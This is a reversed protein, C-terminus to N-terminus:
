ASRVRVRGKATSRHNAYWAAADADNCWGGVNRWSAQCPTCYELGLDAAVEADVYSACGQGVCTDPACWGQWTHHKCYKKGRRLPSAEDYTCLSTVNCRSPGGRTGACRVVGDSTRDADPEHFLCFRRGARLPAAEKYTTTARINCRGGIRVRVGECRIAHQSEWTALRDAFAETPECSRREPQLWRRRSSRLDETADRQQDEEDLATTKSLCSFCSELGLDAAVKTDTSGACGTGICKDTNDAPYDAETRSGRDTLLYTLRWAKRASTALWVHRDPSYTGRHGYAAKHAADGLEDYLRRRCLRVYRLKRRMEIQDM